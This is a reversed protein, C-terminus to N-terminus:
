TRGGMRTTSWRTGGSTVLGEPTHTAALPYMPGFVQEANGHMLAPVLDAAEAPELYGDEVLGELTRTLERRALQAHGVINEVPIYDGGFCLLKSAPLATLARRLFDRTAVPDIIWAWCLDAVINTQHKAAAIVEGQYPYGIHMLVFPTPFRRALTVVDAVNDRVDRLDMRDTGVHLGTHVKVALGTDAALGLGTAIIADEMARRDDDRIPEGRIWARFVADPVPAPDPSVALPRAYAIGLKVACASRGFRDFYDGMVQCLDALRGVERGTTAEWDALHGPTPRVFDTLGIDQPLSEPDATERFTRELSNVQCAAVGAVDLVTRYFGPQRLGAMRRDIEAVTDRALDLGFLTRISDRAARVYTSNRTRAYAEAVADWKEEPGADPSEFVARDRPGLGASVLDDLAYHWLLYAWDDCPHVGSGEVPPALRTAEEPLHEHTDLWPTADVLDRLDSSM